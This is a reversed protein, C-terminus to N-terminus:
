SRCLPLSMCRIGGAGRILSEPALGTGDPVATVGREKLAEITPNREPDYAGDADPEYVPLVVGDDVTLFNAPWREEWTAAVTDYGKEALYASFPVSRDRRYGDGTREYVDVTSHDALDEYVVALGEAPVNAWGLLHMTRGFTDHERALTRDAALPARVLGVEDYGLAGAELLQEAAAYSTRIVEERGDIEASVGLLAFDDAPVFEGGEIPEGAVRHVIEAGVGEWAARVYPLEPQRIAEYMNCLIPGRDGVITTDCQYYINSVPRDLSVSPSPSEEPRGWPSRDAGSVDHRTLTARGLALGLKERPDFLEIVRDLAAEDPEGADDEVTVSERVMPDLAGAAAIDDALQHVEVGADELAAAVARHERRAQAPPVGDLFLNPTPALGGGLIEIGPTHLRVAELRDYEADIAYETM